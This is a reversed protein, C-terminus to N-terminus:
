LGNSVHKSAKVRSVTFVAKVDGTKRLLGSM